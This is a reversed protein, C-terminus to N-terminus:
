AAEMGGSSEPGGSDFIDQDCEEYGESDVITSDVSNIDGSDYADSDYEFSHLNEM